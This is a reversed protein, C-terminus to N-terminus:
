FSKLDNVFFLVSVFPIFLLHTGRSFSFAYFAKNCVILFNVTCIIWKFYGVVKANKILYSVTFMFATIHKQFIM